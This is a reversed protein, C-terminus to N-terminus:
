PTTSNRWKPTAASQWQVTIANRSKLAMGNHRQLTKASWHCMMKVAHRQPTMMRCCRSPTCRAKISGDHRSVTADCYQPPEALRSAPAPSSSAHSEFIMTMIAAIGPAFLSCMQSSFPRETGAQRTVHYEEPSLQERWPADTKIVKRDPAPNGVKALRLVDPWKLMMM